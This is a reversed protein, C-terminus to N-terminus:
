AAQDGERNEYDDWEGFEEEWDSEAEEGIHEGRGVFALGGLFGFGSVETVGALVDGLEEAVGEFFGTEWDGGDVGFFFFESFEEAFHSGGTFLGCVFVDDFDALDEFVIECEVVEGTGM